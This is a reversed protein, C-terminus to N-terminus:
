QQPIIEITNEDKEGEPVNFQINQTLEEETLDINAAVERVMHIFHRFIQTTIKNYNNQIKGQLDAKTIKREKIDELAKTYAHIEARKFYEHISSKIVCMLDETPIEKLDKKNLHGEEEEKKNCEETIDKVHDAFDIEDMGCVSDIFEEESLGSMVVRMEYVREEKEEEIPKGKIEVSNELVNIDINKHGGEKLRDIVEKVMAAPHICSPNNVENLTQKVASM